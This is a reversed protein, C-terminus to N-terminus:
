RSPSNITFMIEVMQQAASIHQAVAESSIKRGDNTCRPIGFMYNEMLEDPSIVLGTNKNYSVKVKLQPM